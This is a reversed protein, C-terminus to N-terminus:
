DFAATSIRGSLHGSGCNASPTGVLNPRYLGRANTNATDTSITVNFPLGSQLTTIGSLQWDGLAAHLIGKSAQFFPLEYLYTTVFRHRIDWNSNGYDLKWNYPNMPTGSNNSDTSVDLTHSWTFSALFQLHRTMRQRLVASVGQYTAVMDNHATRIQAFTQNPRRPNIAGPGPLPTNNYYNRDLHVSHSGLYQIELGSGAWLERQVSFSWQNM